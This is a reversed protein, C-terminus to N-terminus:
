AWEPNIISCLTDIIGSFGLSLRIENLRQCKCYDSFPFFFISHWNVNISIKIIFILIVWTYIPIQSLIQWSCTLLCIKIFVSLRKRQSLKWFFCHSFALFQLTESHQGGTPNIGTYGSPMVWGKQGGEIKWRIEFATAAACYM